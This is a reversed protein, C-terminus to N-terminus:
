GEVTPIEPEDEVSSSSKSVPICSIRLSLWISPRKDWLQLGGGPFSNTFSRSAAYGDRTPQQTWVEIVMVQKGQEQRRLGLLGHASPWSRLRRAAGLIDNLWDQQSGEKNLPGIWGKWINHGGM